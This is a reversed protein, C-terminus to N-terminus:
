ISLEKFKERIKEKLEESCNIKVLPNCKTFMKDMIVYMNNYFNSLTIEKLSSCRFFMRSMDNVKNINLNIDLKKLAGCESFMNSMNVVNISNFNSFIIDELLSCNKFMSYMSIVNNINFNSLNLKTISNCGNFMGSMDIVKNTNFSSIIINKLSSCGNFMNSMNEVKDTIFKSLDLKKLSQCGYFMNAMNIINYTKFKSFKIEELNFCNFFMDKMDIFDGMPFRVFTINKVVKCDKFLGSINKIKMSIFIKIKNIKGIEDKDINNRKIEENNNDNFYIHYLSKQDLEEDNQEVYNIFKGDYNKMPIIEIIMKSNIKYDELAKNFKTQFKKNFRIINLFAGEELHNFIKEMIFKSKVNSLYVQNSADKINQSM